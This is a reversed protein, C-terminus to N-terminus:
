DIKTLESSIEDTLRLMFYKTKNNKFKTRYPFVVLVPEYLDPKFRKIFILNVVFM